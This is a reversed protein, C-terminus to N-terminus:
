AASSAEPHLFKVNKTLRPLLFHMLLACAVGLVAGALVDTPWHVFLFVRSFGILCALVLSPIGWRRDRLLIAVAAAFSACTHGSPFSSGSPPSILLTVLDPFQQFPRPRAIVSKLLFQGLVLGLLMACIASFGTFRSKRRIFLVLSLIAWILGLEALYTVYPFVADTFPHHLREQVFSMVSADFSNVGSLLSDFM